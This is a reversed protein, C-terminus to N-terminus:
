LKRSFYVAEASYLNVVKVKKGKVESADCKEGRRLMATKRRCNCRPLRFKLIKLTIGILKGWMEFFLSINSTSGVWRKTM